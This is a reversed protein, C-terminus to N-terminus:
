AVELGMDLAMDLVVELVMAELVAEEEVAEVVEEEKVTDEVQVVMDLEKEQEMDLGMDLVPAELVEEVEVAEGVVEVVVM